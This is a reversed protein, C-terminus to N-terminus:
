SKIHSSCISWNKLIKYIWLKPLMKFFVSVEKVIKYIPHHFQIKNIKPRQLRGQYLSYSDPKLSSNNSFSNYWSNCISVSEKRGKSNLLTRRAYEHYWSSLEKCSLLKWFVNYLYVKFFESSPTHQVSSYPKNQAKDMTQYIYSL